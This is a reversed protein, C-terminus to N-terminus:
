RVPFEADYWAQFFKEETLGTTAEVADDVNEGAGVRQLTEAVRGAGFRAYFFMMLRASQADAVGAVKMSGGGSRFQAPSILAGAGAYPRLAEVSVHAGGLETVVSLNSLTVLGLRMWNPVPTGGQALANILVQAHLRGLVAPVASGLAVPRPPQGPGAPPLIIPLALQSIMLIRNGIVDGYDGALPPVAARPGANQRYVAYANERPFILIEEEEARWGLTTDSRALLQGAPVALRISSDGDYYRLILDNPAVGLPAILPPEMAMLNAAHAASQGWAELLRSSVGSIFTSADTVTAGTEDADRSPMLPAASLAAKWSADAAALWAARNRAPSTIAEAFGAQLVGRWLRCEAAKPALQEASKLWADAKALEGRQLELRARLINIMAAARNRSAADAGAAQLLAVASSVEGRTLMLRPQAATEATAGELMGYGIPQLARTFQQALKTTDEGGGAGRFLDAARELTGAPVSTLASASTKRTGMAQPSSAVLRMLNQVFLAGDARHQEVFAPTFVAWGDGYPAIAAAFLTGTSRAALDSVRLLPVGAPHETVLQDGAAMQYYVLRVGLPSAAVRTKVTTSGPAGWLLPHAAFSLAARARGYLQGAVRATAPRAPVTRYGFLQAADNHLFVVGGNRVWEALGQWAEPKAQLTAKKVTLSVADAGRLSLSALDDVKADNVELVRLAAGPTGQAHATKESFTLVASMGICLSSLLVIRKM